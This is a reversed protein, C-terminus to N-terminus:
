VSAGPPLRPGHASGLSLALRPRPADAALPPWSGPLDLTLQGSWLTAGDWDAGAAAFRGTGAAGAFAGTGSRDECDGGAGEASWGGTVKLSLRDGNEFM